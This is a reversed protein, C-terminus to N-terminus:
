AENYEPDADDDDEEIIECDELAALYKREFKLVRTPQSKAKEIRHLTSKASTTALVMWTSSAPAM